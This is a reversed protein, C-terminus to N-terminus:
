LSAFAGALWKRLYLCTPISSGARYNRWAHAVMRLPWTLPHIRRFVAGKTLISEPNGSERRGTSVGEHRVIFYPFYRVNLGKAMMEHIWLDEEGSGFRAGLGFNENFRVGSKLVKERRFAVEVSSTFYGKPSHRLDFTASPYPKTDASQYKFAAVDLEPNQEFTNIIQLIGEPIFELDDDAILCIPATAYSISLNRNISLGRTKSIHIEFDDRNLSPPLEAAGEGEPMQWSVLYKVGPIRPHETKALREIGGRGYTCILIQLKM